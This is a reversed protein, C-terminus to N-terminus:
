KVPIGSLKQSLAAQLRAPYASRPGDPGALASSGTGVVTITLQRQKAVASFVRKLQSDSYLLYDPVACPPREAARTAGTFAPVMLTAALLLWVARSRTARATIARAKMGRTKM